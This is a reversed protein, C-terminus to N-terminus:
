GKKRTRCQQLIPDVDLCGVYQCCPFGSGVLKRDAFRCPHKCNRNQFKALGNDGELRAFIEEGM